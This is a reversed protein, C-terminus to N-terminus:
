LPSIARGDSILIMATLVINNQLRSAKNRQRDTVLYPQIYYKRVEKLLKRTKRRVSSRCGVAKSVFAVELLNRECRYIRDFNNYELNLEDNELKVNLDQYSYPTVM